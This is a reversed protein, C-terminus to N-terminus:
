LEKLWDLMRRIDIPTNGVQSVHLASAIMAVLSSQWLTAGSKLMLSTCVLTLDGAGSVDLPTKNLASLSDLNNEDRSADFILAGEPGLTIMVNDVSLRQSLTEIVEALGVDNDMIGVALRAELETPTVLDLNNFKSLDGRQSSTQSDAAVFVNHQHAMDLLTQVMDGNLLGYSFDSFIIVDYSEINTELAEVFERFLQPELSHGKFNNVRLLTKNQSRYRKKSTTPRSDDVLLNVGIGKEVLQARTWHGAEDNGCVSYFDVDCGFANAHLAVIAAGGVFLANSTPKVVITPDERSLGVSDCEVYEDVIIDGVVAVKLSKTREILTTLSDHNIDHRRVFKRYSDPFSPVYEKVGNHLYSLYGSQSEGSNFILKGGWDTVIEREVNHRHKFEHGKVVINPRIDRLTAELEDILLVHDILNISKLALLRDDDDLLHEGEHAKKFLGVVLKSGLESAMKFLRIHGPHLVNFIGSIFVVKDKIHKDSQM